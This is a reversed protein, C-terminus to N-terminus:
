LLDNIFKGTESMDLMWFYKKKLINSQEEKDM